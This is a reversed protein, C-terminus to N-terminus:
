WSKVRERLELVYHQVEDCFGIIDNRTAEPNNRLEYARKILPHKKHRLHKFLKKYSFDKKYNYDHQAELFILNMVFKPFDWYNFKERGGRLDVVANILQNILYFAEDKYDLPKISFDKKPNFDFGWLLKFTPLKKLFIHPSFFDLSEIKEASNLEEVSITKFKVEFGNLLNQKQSKFEQSITKELAKDFDDDVIGFFDICSFPTRDKSLISGALYLSVLGKEKLETVAFNAAYDVTKEILKQQKSKFPWM